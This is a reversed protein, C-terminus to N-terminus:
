FIQFFRQSDADFQFLQVNTDIAARIADNTYGPGYHFFLAQTKSNQVQAGVLDRIQSSRVKHGPTFKAQAVSTSSVVDIGGDPGKPTRQADPFGTQRM